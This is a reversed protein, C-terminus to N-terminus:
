SYCIQSRMGQTGEAAVDVLAEIHEPSLGRTTAVDEILELASKLKDNGRFKQRTKAVCYVSVHGPNWISLM